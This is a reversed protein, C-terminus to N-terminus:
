WSLNVNKYGLIHVNLARREFNMKFPAVPLILIPKKTYTSKIKNVILVSFLTLNHLKIVFKKITNTKQCHVVNKLEIKQQCHEGNKITNKELLTCCKEITNKNGDTYVM